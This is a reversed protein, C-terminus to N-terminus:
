ALFSGFSDLRGRMDTMSAVMAEMLKKSVALWCTGSVCASSALGAATNGTRAPRVQFCIMVMRYVPTREVSPTSSISTVVFARTSCCPWRKLVHGIDTIRNDYMFHSGQPEQVAKMSNTLHMRVGILIARGAATVSRATGGRICCGTEWIRIHRHHMANDVQQTAAAQM